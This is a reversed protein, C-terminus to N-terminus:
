LPLYETLIQLPQQLLQQQRQQRQQLSWRLILEVLDSVSFILQTFISIHYSSRRLLTILIFISHCFHWTIPLYLRLFGHCYCLRTLRNCWSSASFAPTSKPIFFLIDFSSAQSMHHYSIIHYVLRHCSMTYYLIISWDIIHCPIVHYWIIDYWTVLRM